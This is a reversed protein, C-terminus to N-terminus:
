LLSNRNKQYRYRQLDETMWVVCERLIRVMIGPTGFFSRFPPNKLVKRALFTMNKVNFSLADGASSVSVMIMLNPQTIKFRHGIRSICDNEFKAQYKRGILTYNHRSFGEIRHKPSAWQNTAVFSVRILPSGCVVMISPKDRCLKESMPPLFWAFNSFSQIDLFPNLILIVGGFKIIKTDNEEASSAKDLTTFIYLVKLAYPVSFGGNRKKQTM